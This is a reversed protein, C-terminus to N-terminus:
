KIWYGEKELTEKQFKYNKNKKVIKVIKGSAREKLAMEYISNDKEEELIYAIKEMKKPIAFGREEMLLLLREFGISFGCAPVSIGAYKEIMNDYRGGGGISSSLDEVEIEFITGTYYGMGRVLTPDFKIEADGYKAITEMIFSLNDVVEEDMSIQHCFEKLSMKEKFYNLYQKVKSSELGLNELEEKVGDLGIKDLKDLAILIQEMDEKKFGVTELMKELIRRDNIKVQFGKFNLKTLFTTVALILEIEAICTKEGLIDLDCQMFERYRGKQSREARYVNGTQFARFPTKLVSIHNAYYRSLPVTLDYRLGSDVLSDIDDMSGEKLKEGRKMIKFILKENEGGQRGTLNEIHEVAPTQIMEFGFTKYTDKMVNLVYERLEMSEPLIDRMGKTPTKIFGM